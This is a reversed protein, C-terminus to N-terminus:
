ITIHQIPPRHEVPNTGLTDHRFTMPSYGMVRKFKMRFYASDTFGAILTVDSINLDSPLFFQRAYKIKRFLLYEKVTM